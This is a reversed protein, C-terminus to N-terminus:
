AGNKQFNEIVDAVTSFRDIRGVRDEIGEIRLLDRVSAHAEVLRLVLGHKALETQLELLMKAGAVDINASTSLDCVVLRLTKIEAEIRDLVVRFIHDVNFYLMASEVRFVLVGPIQENDQHRALDSFRRTGPIRGLFAVHPRAVHQILLLISAVAAILVGKLIGFLLVGVLAVAAIMFELKSVRWLQRLEQVKVLGAVAMLVIAALAARPLNRLFGTFFLLCLALTISAFILSLPTKAGAKENVASQSLGGAVPYGHGFAVLLNASGLGLLEQRVDVKYGHKSAFARAASVSEMYSLLLAAFAVPLIEDVEEFQMAPPDFRPLGSPIDGVTEIRGALGTVSVFATSLIVVLLAIPRNPLFKEGLWLLALSALGIAAILPQIQLLQSAIALIREIFNHGGGHIGLLHPIQTVAISLGAGAKFGLLITESIFDILSSLRLLWALTFLAAAGFAALTALQAFRVPDGLALPAVSAGIMLSIASTPGIALHRSSGFLAYGIGGLLYGYIGVQPPLGALSAYAVGEPLAYAGLTIGAVLDSGLWRPEYTPLWQAPPFIAKWRNPKLSSSGTTEPSNIEL